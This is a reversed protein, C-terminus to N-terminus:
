LPAKEVVKYMSDTHGIYIGRFFLINIIAHGSLNTNFYGQVYNCLVDM